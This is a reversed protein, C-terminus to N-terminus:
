RSLTVGARALAAGIIVAASTPVQRMPAAAILSWTWMGISRHRELARADQHLRATRAM